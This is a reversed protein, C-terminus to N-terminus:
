KFVTITEVQEFQPSVLEGCNPCTYFPIKLEYGDDSGHFLETKFELKLKISCCSSKM